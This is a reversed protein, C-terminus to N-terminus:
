NIDLKLRKLFFFSIMYILAMSAMVMTLISPDQSNDGQTIIGYITSFIGSSISLLFSQLGYYSGSIRSVAQSRNTTENVLNQASRDILENMIPASFLSSSYSCGLVTGFTITYVILTLIFDMKILFVMELLAAIIIFIVILTWNRILGKNKASHWKWFFYWAYKTVLSMFIYYIFIFSSQEKPLGSGLVFGIFPLVYIFIIQSSQSSVFAGLYLRYDSDKIPILMGKFTEKVSRKKSNTVKSEKFHFSEDISLFTLFICICTFTGFSFAVIPMISRVIEGNPTWYMSTTLDIFSSLIMPFSMGLVSAIIRLNTSLSAVKKRNELTQSIEPLVSAISIMILTGFFTKVVTTFWYWLTTPLYKVPGIIAQDLPPIEPPLFILVQFILWPVLGVLIYPRRKGLRRIKSNDLIIGVLISSFAGIIMSITGGVSVMLNDLRLVYVYYTRSYSDVALMTLYIAFNGLTYGVLRFGHLERPSSAINSKEM